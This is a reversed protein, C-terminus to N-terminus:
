IQRKYVDSSNNMLVLIENDKDFREYAIVADNGTSIPNIDGTRLASYANRVAALTAYREVLEKDGKGWIMGRRNDPDAAGVMGLEDGYYITPTGPYTM